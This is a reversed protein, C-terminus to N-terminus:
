ANEQAREADDAHLSAIANTISGLALNLHRSRGKASQVFQLRQQVAALVDVARAGRSPKGPRTYETEDWLVVIGLRTIKGGAPFGTDEYIDNRIHVHQLDPKSM